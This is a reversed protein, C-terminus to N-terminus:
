CKKSKYYQIQERPRKVPAEYILANREPDDENYDYVKFRKGDLIYIYFPVTVTKGTEKHIVEMSHHQIDEENLGNSVKFKDVPDVPPTKLKPDPLGIARFTSQRSAWIVPKNFREQRGEHSRDQRDEHNRDQRDQRGNPSYRRHESRRDSPSSHSSPIQGVLDISRRGSGEPSKLKRRSGAVQFGEEPKEFEIDGNVVSNVIQEENIETSTEGLPSRYNDNPSSSLFNPSRLDRNPSRSDCNPSRSDGVDESGVRSVESSGALDEEIVPYEAWSTTTSSSSALSESM